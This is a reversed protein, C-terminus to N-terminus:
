QLETNVKAVRIKRRMLTSMAVGKEEAKIKAVEITEKIKDEKGM